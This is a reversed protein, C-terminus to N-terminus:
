SGSLLQNIRKNLNLYMEYIIKEADDMFPNDIYNKEKNKIKEEINDEYLNIYAEKKVIDKEVWDNYVPISGGELADFLKETIYNEERRNEPCINFWFRYNKLFEMKGQHWNGWRGSSLIDTNNLYKGCCKVPMYKSFKEYMDKRNNDVGGWGAILVAEEIKPKTGRIKKTNVVINDNWFADFGAFKRASLWLPYRYMNLEFNNPYSSLIINFHKHLDEINMTISNKTEYLAFIKIKAELKIAKHINGFVSCFLIDPKKTAKVLCLPKGIIKSWNELELDVGEWFNIFAVNLSNENNGIIKKIKEMKNKGKIKMRTTM